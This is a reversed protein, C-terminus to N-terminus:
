LVTGEPAADTPAADEEEDTLTEDAEEADDAPAVPADVAPPEATDDADQAEEQEDDASLESAQEEAQQDTGEAAAAIMRNNGQLYDGANKPLTGAALALAFTFSLARKWGKHRKM